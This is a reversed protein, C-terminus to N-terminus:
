AAKNWGEQAKLYEDHIKNKAENARKEINAPLLYEAVDVGYKLGYEKYYEWAMELRKEILAIDDNNRPLFGNAYTTEEGLVSPHFAVFVCVDTGQLFMHSHNQWYLEPYKEKMDRAIDMSRCIEINEAHSRGTAACKIEISHKIGMYTFAEMECSGGYYYYKPHKTFECDVLEIKLANAAAQKALPEHTNGYDLTWAKVEKYTGDKLDWLKEEIYTKATQNLTIPADRKAQLDALTKRQNDTLPKARSRLDELTAFQAETINSFDGMIKWLDSSTIIGLRQLHWEHSKQEVYNEM